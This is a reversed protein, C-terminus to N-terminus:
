GLHKHEFIGFGNVANRCAALMLFSCKLKNIIDKFFLYFFPCGAIDTKRNIKNALFDLHNEFFKKGLILLKWVM